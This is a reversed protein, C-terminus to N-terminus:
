SVWGRLNGVRAYKGPLTRTPDTRRPCISYREGQPEKGGEGERREKMAAVEGRKEFSSDFRNKEGNRQGEKVM